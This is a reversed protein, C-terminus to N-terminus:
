STLECRTDTASFGATTVADQTCRDNAGPGGLLSDDGNGGAV